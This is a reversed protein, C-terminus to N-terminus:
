HSGSQAGQFAMTRDSRSLSNSRSKRAVVRVLGLLNLKSVFSLADERVSPNESNEFRRRLFGLVDQETFTKTVLVLDHLVLYAPENLTFVRGGVSDTSFAVGSVVLAHQTTGQVDIFKFASPDCTLEYTVKAATDDDMADVNSDSATLLVLESIHRACICLSKSM